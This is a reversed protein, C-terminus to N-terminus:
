VRLPSSCSSSPPQSDGDVCILTKEATTHEIHPPVALVCLFWAYVSESSHPTPMGRIIFEEFLRDDCGRVHGSSRAELYSRRGNEAYSYRTNCM